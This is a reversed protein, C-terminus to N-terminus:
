SAFPRQASRTALRADCTKTNRAHLDEHVHDPQVLRQVGGVALGVQRLHELPVFPYETTSEAEAPPESM